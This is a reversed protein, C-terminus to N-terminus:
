RPARTCCWMRGGERWFSRRPSTPLWCCAKSGDRADALENGGGRACGGVQRPCRGADRGGGHAAVVSRAAAAAPLVGGDALPRLGLVAVVRPVVDEEEAVAVSGAAAAAPIAGVAALPFVGLAAEVPLLVEDWKLV